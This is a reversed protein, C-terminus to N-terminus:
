NLNFSSFTKVPQPTPVLFEFDQIITIITNGLCTVVGCEL